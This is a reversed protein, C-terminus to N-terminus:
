LGFTKRIHENYQEKEKGEAKRASIIRIKGCRDNTTVFVFSVGDIVGITNLREEGAKESNDKDYFELRLPDAFVKAATEFSLRHKMKNEENKSRQWVFGSYIVDDYM